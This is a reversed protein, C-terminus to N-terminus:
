RYARLNVEIFYIYEVMKIVALAYMTASFWFLYRHRYMKTVSTLLNNRYKTKEKNIITHHDIAMFLLYAACAALASAIAAEESIQMLLIASCGIYATLAGLTRLKHNM